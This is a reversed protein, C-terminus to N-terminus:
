SAGHLLTRRLFNVTLEALCSIGGKIYGSPEKSHECSGVV